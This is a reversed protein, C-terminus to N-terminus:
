MSAAAREPLATSQSFGTSRAEALTSVQRFATSAAPIGSIIPKLRRKSGFKAARLCRISWPAIPLTSITV